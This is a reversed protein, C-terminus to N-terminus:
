THIIRQFDLINPLASCGARASSQVHALLSQIRELWHQSSSSIMLYEASIEPSGAASGNLGFCHGGGLSDQLRQAATQSVQLIMLIHASSSSLPSHIPCALACSAAQCRWYLIRHPLQLSSALYGSCSSSAALTFFPTWKRIPLSLHQAAIPAPDPWQYANTHNGSNHNNLM